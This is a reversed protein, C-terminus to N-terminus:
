PFQVFNVKIEIHCNFKQTIIILEEKIFEEKDILHTNILMFCFAESHLKNFLRCQDWGLRLFASVPWGPRLISFLCWKDPNCIEASNIKDFRENAEDLCTTILGYDCLDLSFTIKSHFMNEPLM